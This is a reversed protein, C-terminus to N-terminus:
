VILRQGYQNSESQGVQVPTVTKGDSNLQLINMKPHKCIFGLKSLGFAGNQGNQSFTSGYILGSSCLYVLVSHMHFFPNTQCFPKATELKGFLV